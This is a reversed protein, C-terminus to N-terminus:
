VDAVNKFNYKEAKAKKWNWRERKIHTLHWMKCFPCEYMTLVGRHTRKYQPRFVKVFDYAEGRTKFALKDNCKMTQGGVKYRVVSLTQM